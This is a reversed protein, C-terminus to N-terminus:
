HAIKKLTIFSEPFDQKSLKLMRHKARHRWDTIPGGDEIQKYSKINVGVPLGTKDIELCLIPAIGNNKSLNFRSYTCFNGLSYAIVRNKYIEIGRPVHPGHGLLLDAGHDICFHAFAFVDGRNENLYNEQNRPVHTHKNGEAGGHFSIIVLDCFTNM